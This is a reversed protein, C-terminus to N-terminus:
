VGRKEERSDASPRFQTQKGLNSVLLAILVGTGKVGRETGLAICSLWFLDM